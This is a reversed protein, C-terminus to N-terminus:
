DNQVIVLDTKFSLYDTMSKYHLPEGSHGDYLNLKSKSQSQLLQSKENQLVLAELDNFNNQKTLHGLTLGTDAHIIGIQKM